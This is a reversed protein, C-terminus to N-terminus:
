AAAEPLPLVDQRPIPHFPLRPRAAEAELRRCATSFTGADQEIGVFRRGLALCAVGTTGSGAFPDCVLDGPQTYLSVLEMMLAVPKACPHDGKATLHTFVGRRGGGNWRRHGRGTWASVICEFGRAAGQGNFRPAADPKVWCLTTDWRGGVDTIAAEWAGVGEALAFALLWGSSASVMVRAAEARIDGIGAFGPGRPALRGDTRRICRESAARHLVDEYPPDTIVHDVAGLGPLVALCDGCHLTADGITVATTM